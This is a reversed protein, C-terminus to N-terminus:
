PGYEGDENFTPGPDEYVMWGHVSTRTDNLPIDAYDGVGAACDEANKRSAFVVRRAKLLSSPVEGIVQLVKRM